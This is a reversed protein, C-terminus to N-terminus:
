EYCCNSWRRVDGVRTAAILCRVTSQWHQPYGGRQLPPVFDWDLAKPMNDIERQTVTHQTKM